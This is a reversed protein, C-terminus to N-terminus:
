RLDYWLVWDQGPEEKAGGGQARGPYKGTAILNKVLTYNDETGLASCPFVLGHFPVNDKAM